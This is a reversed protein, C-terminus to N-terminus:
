YEFPRQGGFSLPDLQFKRYRQEWCYVVWMQIPMLVVFALTTWSLGLDFLQYRYTPWWMVERREAVKGFLDFSKKYGPRQAYHAANYFPNREYDKVTYYDHPVEDVVDHDQTIRIRGTQVPLFPLRYRLAKALRLAM